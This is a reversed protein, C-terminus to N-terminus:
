DAEFFAFLGKDFLCLGYKTVACGHDHHCKVLLALCVAQFLPNRDALSGPADQRLFNAEGALVNNEVGINKGDGRAKRFVIIVAHVENLGRALDLLLARTYQDGAPQTINRKREAALVTNATREVRHEQVVCYLGSQVHGDDIRALEFDVVFDIGPQARRDFIDHQISPLIRGLLQQGQRLFELAPAFGFCKAFLPPFKRNVVPQHVCQDLPDVAIDLLVGLFYPTARLTRQVHDFPRQHVAHVYDAVQKTVALHEQGLYDFAGPHHFLGYRHEYGVDFFFFTETPVRAATLPVHYHGRYLTVYM